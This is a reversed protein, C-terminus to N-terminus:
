IAQASCRTLSLSPIEQHPMGGFGAMPHTHASSLGFGDVGKEQGSSELQMWFLVTGVVQSM